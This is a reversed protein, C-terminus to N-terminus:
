SKEEIILPSFAGGNNAKTKIMGLRNPAAM